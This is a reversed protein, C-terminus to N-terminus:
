NLGMFLSRFDRRYDPITSSSMQTNNSQLVNLKQQLENNPSLISNYLNLIFSEHRDNRRKKNLRISQIDTSLMKDEGLQVIDLLAYKHCDNKQNNRVGEDYRDNHDGDENDSTVESEFNDVTMDCNDIPNRTDIVNGHRSYTEDVDNRDESYELSEINHLNNINDMCQNLDDNTHKPKEVTIKLQTTLNAIVVNAEKMEFKRNDSENGFFKMIFEFLRCKEIVKRPEISNVDAVNITDYVKNNMADDFDIRGKKYEEKEFLICKHALTVNPSHLVWSDENDGIPLAKVWMNVNEMLDDLVHLSYIRGDDQNQKYRCAVNCRLEQLNHYDLEHYKREIQSLVIEVYNHKDLLLFIGCFRSEIFEMGVADGASMSEKYRKFWTVMKFFRILYEWRDDTTTKSKEDVYVMFGRCLRMAILNSDSIYRLMGMGENTGLFHQIYHHFLFRFVEEYCMFCLSECLRFNDSVKTPKLKKWDVINQFLLLLNKYVTYICQLMHFAMHLPGSEETVRSVAKQFVLSQEYAKTFRFPLKILKKCFLKHRDLSLGDLCLYM